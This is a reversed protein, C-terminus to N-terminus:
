GFRVGTPVNPVTLLEDDLAHDLAMQAPEPSGIQLDREADAIAKLISITGMDMGSDEAVARYADKISREDIIDSQIDQLLTDLESAGTAEETQLSLNISSRPRRPAPETMAGFHAFTPAVGAQTEGKLSARAKPDMWSATPSFRRHAAFGVVLLAMSGFIAAAYPWMQHWVAVAASGSSRHPSVNSLPLSSPLSQSAVRAPAAAAPAITPATVAAVPLSAAAAEQIFMGGGSRGTSALTVMDRPVKSASEILAAEHPAPVPEVTSRLAVVSPKAPLPATEVPTGWASLPVSTATAVVTTPIVRAPAPERRVRTWPAEDADATAIRTPAELAAPDFLLVYDRRMTSGCGAQISLRGAPERMANASTIVLRPNTAEQELSVRATVIQPADGNSNDAVLKVCAPNLTEGKALRVPIVVRLPQGLSSQTAINGLTVGRTPTPLLAASAALSLVVAYPLYKRNLAVPRM